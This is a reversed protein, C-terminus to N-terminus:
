LIRLEQVIMQVRLMLLLMNLVMMNTNIIVLRVVLVLILQGLKGLQSVIGIEIVSM